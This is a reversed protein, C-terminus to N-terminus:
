MLPPFMGLVVLVGGWFGIWKLWLSEGSAEAQSGLIHFLEMFSFSSIKFVPFLMPNRKENTKNQKKSEDSLVIWNGYHVLGIHTLNSALNFMFFDSPFTLGTLPFPLHTAWGTPSIPDCPIKGQQLNRVNGDHFQKVLLYGQRSKLM